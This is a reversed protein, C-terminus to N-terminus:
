KKLEEVKLLWELDSTIGQYVQHEFFYKRTGYIDFFAPGTERHLRNEYFWAKLGNIWIIAPEDNISHIMDNVYHVFCNRSSIQDYWGNLPRDLEKKFPIDNFNELIDFM